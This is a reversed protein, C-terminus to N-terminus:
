ATVPGVRTDGTGGQWSASDNEITRLTRFHERVPQGSGATAV